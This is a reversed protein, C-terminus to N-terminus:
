GATPHRRRASSKRVRVFGITTRSRSAVVMVVSRAPHPPQGGSENVNYVSNPPARAAPPDDMLAMLAAPGADNSDALVDAVVLDTGAPLRDPQIVREADTRLDYVARIGLKAFALTAADDLRSLETSRYLLGGRVSACSRAPRGGVDRLNPLSPILPSEGPVPPLPQM